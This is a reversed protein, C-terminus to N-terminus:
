WMFNMSNAAEGTRTMKASKANGETRYQGRFIFNETWAAASTHM